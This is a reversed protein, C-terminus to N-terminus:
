KSSIRAEAEWRGRRCRDRDLIGKRCLSSRLLGFNLAGRGRPRDVDEKGTVASPALVVVRLLIAGPLAFPAKELFDPEPGEDFGFRSLRNPSGGFNVDVGRRDVKYGTGSSMLFFRKFTNRSKGLPTKTWPNASIYLAM